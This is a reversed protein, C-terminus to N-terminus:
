TLDVSWEIYNGTRVQFGAKGQAKADDDTRVWVIGKEDLKDLLPQRPIDPWQTVHSTSFLATFKGTIVSEILERPTANHSGHHSVKLLTTQSLLDRTAPNQLIENWAGWQADGPFLLYQGAIELMLILSTNNVAADLAAALAGYPQDALERVYALDADRITTDDGAEAFFADRTLHSRADFAGTRTGPAGPTSPVNLYGKGAPPDMKQIAARSRPPGLVHLKVQDLGPVALTPFPTEPRPLFRRVPDGTFGHHLTEMAAENTLANSVMARYARQLRAAESEKVGKGDFLPEEDPSAKGGDQDLAAAFGSQRNRIHTAEADDPDETWPMWVESVKVNAWRPDKFGGVHDKHRHTAVVLAIEPSGGDPTCQAMIDDVITAVRKSGETISGCDILIHAAATHGTWLSVLFCDGFGVEYMRITLRDYM